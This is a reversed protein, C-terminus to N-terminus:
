RPTRRHNGLLQKVMADLGAGTDVYNEALNLAQSSPQLGEAKVSGLASAVQESRNKQLLRKREAATQNM